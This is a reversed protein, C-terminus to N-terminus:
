IDEIRVLSLRATESKLAEPRGSLCWVINPYLGGSCVICSHSKFGSSKAAFCSSLVIDFGVLVCSILEEVPLAVQERFALTHRLAHRLCTARLLAHQEDRVLGFRITPRVAGRKRVVLGSRPSPLLAPWKHVAVAGCSSWSCWRVTDFFICCICRTRGPPFM